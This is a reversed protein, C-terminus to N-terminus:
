ITMQLSQELRQSSGNGPVYGKVQEKQNRTGLCWLGADKRLMDSGAKRAEGGDAHRKWRRQRGKGEWWCGLM